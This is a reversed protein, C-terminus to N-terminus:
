LGDFETDNERHKGNQKGLLDESQKYRATVEPESHVLFDTLSRGTYRKFSNAFHAEDFYGAQLVQDVLHDPELNTVLSTFRIINVYSKVSMGVLNSFKRTYQRRSLGDNQALDTVSINGAAEKILSLQLSIWPSLQVDFFLETLWLTLSEFNVIPPVPYNPFFLNWDVTEGQSMENMKLGAALLAGPRFYILYSLRNASEHYKQARTPMKTLANNPILIDNKQIKGAVQIGLVDFHDAPVWYTNTQSSHNPLLVIRDVFQRINQLRKIEM